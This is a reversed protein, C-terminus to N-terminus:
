LESTSRMVATFLLRKILDILLDVMYSTEELDDTDHTVVVGDVDDRALTDRVLGCLEFIREPTLHCSPVNSFEILEVRAVEDLGPVMHVLEDGSVAPVAGGLRADYRMSITGGTTILSIRPLLIQGGVM